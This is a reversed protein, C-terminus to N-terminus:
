DALALESLSRTPNACTSTRSKCMCLYSSTFVCSGITAGGVVDAGEADADKCGSGTAAAQEAALQLLPWSGTAIAEEEDDM